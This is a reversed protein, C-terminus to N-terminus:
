RFRGREGGVHLPALGLVPAREGLSAAGATDYHQGAHIAFRHGLLTEPPPWERNEVRKTAHAICWAWPQWLTLALLPEQPWSTV